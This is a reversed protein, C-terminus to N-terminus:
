QTWRWAGGAAQELQAYSELEALRTNDVSDEASLLTEELGILTLEDLAGLSRQQRALQATNGASVQAAVNTEFQQELDEIGDYLKAITTAVDMRVQEERAEEATVETRSRREEALRSGWDFVPVNVTIGAAYVAPTEASSTSLHGLNQGLTYNTSLGVTPLLAAQDLRYTAKAEDVVSQQVGISPHAESARALLGNLEPLEPFAPAKGELREVRGAPQGILVALNAWSDKVSEKTSALTQEDAALEAKALQVDQELMLQLKYQLEVIEVRQQSFYVRAEERALREQYWQAIFYANCLNFVVAEEGLERTWELGEKAARASAVAPADNLGLISGNQFLPYDLEIKEISLPAFDARKLQRPLTEANVTKSSQTEVTHTKGSATTVTRYTTTEVERSNVGLLGNEVDEGTVVAFPSVPYGDMVGGYASATISPLLATREKIMEEGAANIDLQDAKLAPSLGYAAEICEKLTLGAARAECCHGAALM